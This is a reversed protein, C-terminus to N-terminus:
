IFVSMKRSNSYNYEISSPKCLFLIFSLWHLLLHKQLWFLLTIKLSDNQIMLIKSTIKITSQIWWKWPSIPFFGVKKWFSILFCVFQIMLQLAFLNIGTVFNLLGVKHENELILKSLGINAHGLAKQSIHSFNEFYCQFSLSAVFIRVSQQRTM